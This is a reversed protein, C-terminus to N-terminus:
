FDEESDEAEVLGSLLIVVELILISMGVKKDISM